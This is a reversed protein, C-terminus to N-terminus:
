PFWTTGCWGSRWGPRTPDTFDDEYFQGVPAVRLPIGLLQKHRDTFDLASAPDGLAGAEIRHGTQRSWNQLPAYKGYRLANAVVEYTVLKGAADDSPIGPKNAYIWDSTVTLLLSAVSEQASNLPPGDWMGEFTGLDLFDAM